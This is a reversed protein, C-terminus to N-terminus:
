TRDNNAPQKTTATNRRRKGLNSFIIISSSAPSIKAAAEAGVSPKSSSSTSRLLLHLPPPPPAQKPQQQLPLYQVQNIKIHESEANRTTTQVSINITHISWRQTFSPHCLNVHKCSKSTSTNECLKIWKLTLKNTHVTFTQNDKHPRRHHLTITNLKQMNDHICSSKLHHVRALAKYM